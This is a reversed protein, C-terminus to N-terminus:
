KRGKFDIKVAGTPVQFSFLGSPIKPAADWNSLLAQFRPIEAQEAHRIVLKRPWATKGQEVWIQWELGSAQRFALHHCPTGQVSHEGVYFGSEVNTTLASYSDTFLLDALPFVMGLKEDAFDLMPEIRSPVESQAYFGKEQNFVTLQKGDYYASQRGKDGQRDLRIGDPRRVFVEGRNSAEVQVGSIEEDMSIETKVSFEKLGGLYTSMDKLVQDARPEVGPHEAWAGPSLLFLGILFSRAFTNM